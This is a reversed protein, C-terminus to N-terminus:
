VACPSYGCDQCEACGGSHNVKGGCMPCTEPDIKLQEEALQRIQEQLEDIKDINSKKKNS